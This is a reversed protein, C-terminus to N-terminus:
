GLVAIARTAVCPVAVVGYSRGDQRHSLTFALAFFEFLDLTLLFGAFVPGILFMLPWDASTVTSPPTSLAYTGRFSSEGKPM